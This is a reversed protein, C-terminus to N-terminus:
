SEVMHETRKACMFTEVPKLPFPFRMVKYEAINVYDEQYNHLETCASRKANMVCGLNHIFLPQLPYPYMLPETNCLRPPQCPPAERLSWRAGPGDPLKLSKASNAISSLWFDIIRAMRLLM